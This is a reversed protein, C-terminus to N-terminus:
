EPIESSYFRAWKLFAEDTSYAEGISRFLKFMASRIKPKQAKDGLAAIVIAVAASTWRDM